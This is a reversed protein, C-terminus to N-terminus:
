SAFRLRPAPVSEASVCVVGVAGAQLKLCRETTEDMNATRPTLKSAEEGHLTRVEPLVQDLQEHGLKWAHDKSAPPPPAIDHAAAQRINPNWKQEHEAGIIGDREAKRARKSQLRDRHSVIRAARSVASTFSWGSICGVHSIAHTPGFCKETDVCRVVDDRNEAFVFVGAPGKSRM